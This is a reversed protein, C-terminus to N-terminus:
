ANGKIISNTVGEAAASIIANAISKITDIILPLGKQSITDKVKKWRSDDRIKELFDNGDWTLPCVGFVYIEND